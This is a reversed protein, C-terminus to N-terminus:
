CDFVNNQGDGYLRHEVLQAGQPAYEERLYLESRFSSIELSESTVTLVRQAIRVAGFPHGPRAVTVAIPAGQPEEQNAHWALEIRGKSEVAQPQGSELGEGSSHSLRQVRTWRGGPSYQAVGLVGCNKQQEPLGYGLTACRGEESAGEQGTVTQRWWGAM